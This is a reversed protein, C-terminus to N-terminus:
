ALAALCQASASEVGMAARWRQVWRPLDAGSALITSLVRDPDGLDNWEVGGLPLAVLRNAGPSLIQRSFDTPVIRDYLRDAIRDEGHSPPVPESGFVQLLHPLFEEALDLFARVHGVMVFTNWLAGSRLLRAAVQRSPKEQFRTVHLVNPNSSCAAEGLEIWGYEVEPANPRAGLLVVSQPQVEAIQFASELTATFNAEPSYSHDSPLIAVIGERDMRAIHLLSYLIAPATGKNCPQVIRQFPRNSLDRLYYDQHARTVAFLTQEPPIAQEVRRWTQELLTSEGLIQCFQKPRDDGCILRTLARLRVGDGGAVVGGTASASNVLSQTETWCM